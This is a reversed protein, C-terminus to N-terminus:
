SRSIAGKNEPAQIDAEEDTGRRDVEHSAHKFVPEALDSPLRCYTRHCDISCHLFANLVDFQNLNLGTNEPAPLPNCADCPCNCGEDASERCLQTLGDTGIPHINYCDVNRAAAHPCACKPTVPMTAEDIVGGVTREVDNSASCSSTASILASTVVLAADNIFQGRDAWEERPLQRPDSHTGRPSVMDRIGLNELATRVGRALSLKTPVLLAYIDSVYRWKNSHEVIHRAGWDPNLPKPLPAGNEGADIHIVICHVAYVFGNLRMAFSHNGAPYAEIALEFKELFDRDGELEDEICRRGAHILPEGPQMMVGHFDLNNNNGEPHGSRQHTYAVTENLQNTNVFVLKAAHIHGLDPKKAVPEQIVTQETSQSGGRGFQAPCGQQKLDQLQQEEPASRKTGNSGTSDTDMMMCLGFDELFQIDRKSDNEQETGEGTVHAEQRMQMFPVRRSTDHESSGYPRRALNAAYTRGAVPPRPRMPNQSYPVIPSSTNRQVQPITRQGSGNYGFSSTRGSGRGGRGGRGRAMRSHIAMVSKLTRDERRMSGCQEETHGSGFCCPCIAELWVPTERSTGYLAFEFGDFRSVLENWESATYATANDFTEIEGQSDGTLFVTPQPLELPTNFNSDTAQLITPDAGQATAAKVTIKGNRISADWLKGFHSVVADLSRNAGGGGALVFRRAAPLAKLEETASLALADNAEKGLCSLVRCAFRNQDPRDAPPILFVMNNLFRAFLTISGERYGVSGLISAADFKGVTAIVYEDDFAEAGQAELILYARRGIGRTGAGGAGAGGAVAVEGPQLELLLSRTHSESPVFECAISWAKLQRRNRLRLAAANGAGAPLAPATPDDSGTCTGMFVDWINWDDSQSAWVGSCYVRLDRKAREWSIGKDGNWTPMKSDEDSKPMGGRIRFQTPMDFVLSSQSSKSSDMAISFDHVMAILATLKNDHLSISSSLSSCFCQTSCLIQLLPQVAKFIAHRSIDCAFSPASDFFSAISCTDVHVAFAHLAKEHLM